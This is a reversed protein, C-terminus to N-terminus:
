QIVKPPSTDVGSLFKKPTLKYAKCLTYLTQESMGRRNQEIARITPLSLKTIASLEKQTLGRAERAEIARVALDQVEISYTVKM